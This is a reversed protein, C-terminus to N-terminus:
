EAKIDAVADVIYGGVFQLEVKSVHGAIAGSKRYIWRNQPTMDTPPGFHEVTEAYSLFRIRDVAAESDHAYDLAFQDLRDWTFTLTQIVADNTDHCREEILRDM